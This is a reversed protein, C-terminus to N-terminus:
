KKQMESMLNMIVIMDNETLNLVLNLFYNDSMIPKIIEIPATELYTLAAQQKISIRYDYEWIVILNFGLRRILDERELTAQYLEGFTKKVSPNFADADFLRPDGHWYSGHFEYVTRTRACYGDAKYRTGPIRFEGGNMHHQIDSSISTMWDISVQSYGIPPPYCSYCIVDVLKYQNPRGSWIHGKDCKVCDM